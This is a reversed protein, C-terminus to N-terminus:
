SETCISHSNLVYVNIFSSPNTEMDECEFTEILSIEEQFGKAAAM